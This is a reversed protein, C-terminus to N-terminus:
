ATLGLVERVRTDVLADRSILLGDGPTGPRYDSGDFRRSLGGMERLIVAGPAHDWPATRWYVVADRRGSALDAYAKGSWLRDGTVM